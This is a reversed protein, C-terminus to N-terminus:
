WWVKMLVLKRCIFFAFAHLSPSHWKLPTNYIILFPKKTPPLQIVAETICESTNKPQEIQHYSGSAMLLSALGWNKKFCVVTFSAFAM